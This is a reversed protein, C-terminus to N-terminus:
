NYQKENIRKKRKKIISKEIQKFEDYGNLVYYITGNKRMIRSVDWSKIYLIFACKDYDKESIIIIPENTELWETSLELMKDFYKNNFNNYYFSPKIYLNSMKREKKTKKLNMFGILENKKFVLIINREGFTLNPIVKEDFWEVYDPYEIEMISRIKELIDTIDINNNLLTQIDTYIVDKM